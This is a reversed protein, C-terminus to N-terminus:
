VKLLRLQRLVPISSQPGWLGKARWTLLVLDQVAKSEAEPVPPLVGAPVGTGSGSGGDKSSRGGQVSSGHQSSDSLQAGSSLQPQLPSGAGAQRSRLAALFLGQERSPSSSMSCISFLQPATPGRDPHPVNSDTAETQAGPPGKSLSGWEQAQYFSGSPVSDWPALGAVERLPQGVKPPDQGCWGTPRRLREGARRGCDVSSSSGMSCSKTQSDERKGEHPMPQLCGLWGRAAEQCERHPGSQVGVGLQPKRGLPSTPPRPEPGDPPTLARGPRRSLNLEPSSAGWSRDRM